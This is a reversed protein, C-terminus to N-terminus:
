WELGFLADRKRDLGRHATKGLEVLRTRQRPVAQALYCDDEQVPRIDVERAL